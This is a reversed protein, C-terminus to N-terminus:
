PAGSKQGALNLGQQVCRGESSACVFEFTTESPTPSVTLVTPQSKTGGFTAVLSDTFRDLDGPAVYVHTSDYQPGV